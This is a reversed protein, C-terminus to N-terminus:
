EEGSLTAPGVRRLGRRPVEVPEEVQTEVPNQMYYALIQEAMHEAESADALRRGSGPGTPENPLAIANGDTQSCYVARQTAVPEASFLHQIDGGCDLYLGLM